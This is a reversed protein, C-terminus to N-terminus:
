KGQKKYSSFIFESFTKACNVTLIAHYKEVKNRAKIKGHRDGLDNGLEAMGSIISFLGGIIKKLSADLREDNDLNLVKTVDKYLLGL